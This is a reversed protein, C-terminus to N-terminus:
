HAVPVPMGPQASTGNPRTAAGKKEPLHNPALWVYMNPILLLTLVLSSMVGGIIVIGLSSRSGSGPDLALALPLNGFVVSFSTMVIPRFRTFASEKMASLKDLGRARLKWPDLGPVKLSDPDNAKLLGHKFFLWRIEAMRQARRRIVRRFLRNGRRIQNLPHRKSLGESTEPADFMWSGMAVIEGTPNGLTPHRLVAWGCSAIGLDIGFVLGNM